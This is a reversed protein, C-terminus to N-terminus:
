NAKEIRFFMQEGEDDDEEYFEFVCYFADLELFVISIFLVKEILLRVERGKLERILRPEQKILKEFDAMFAKIGKYVEKTVEGNEQLYWGLQSMIKLMKKNM